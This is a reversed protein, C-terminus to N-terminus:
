IEENNSKKKRNKRKIDFYNNANGKVSERKNDDIESIPKYVFAFMDKKPVKAHNYREYEWKKGNNIEKTKNEEEKIKEENDEKIEDDQEEESEEDGDLINNKKGYFIKRYMINEEEADAYDMSINYIIRSWKEFLNLAKNRIEKKLSENKSLEFVYGGIHCSNLIKTNIYKLNYLVELILSIQNLPPYSGDSNKKIFEELLELGDEHLFIKQNDDSSLFTRIKPLIKLKELCPKKNKRNNKDVEIAERLKSIFLECNKQLAEETIKDRRRKKNLISIRNNNDEEAEDDDEDSKINKHEKKLNTNEEEEDKVNSPFEKNYDIEEENLRVRIFSSEFNEYVEEGTMPEILEKITIKSESILHDRLKSYSIIVGIINKDKNNIFTSIDFEFYLNGNLDNILFMTNNVFMNRCIAKVIQIEQENRSNLNLTPLEGSTILFSNGEDDLKSLILERNGEEFFNIIKSYETDKKSYFSYLFSKTNYDEFNITYFISNNIVFEKVLEQESM